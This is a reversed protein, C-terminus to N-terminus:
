MKSKVSSNKQYNVLRSGSGTTNTGPKLSVPLLRIMLSLRGSHYLPSRDSCHFHLFRNYTRIGKWFLLHTPPHFFFNQRIFELEVTSSFASYHFLQMMVSFIKFIQHFCVFCAYIPYSFHLSSNIFLYQVNAM